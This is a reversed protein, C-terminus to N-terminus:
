WEEHGPISNWGEEIWKIPGQDGHEHVQIAWDIYRRVDKYAQLIDDPWFEDPIAALEAFIQAALEASKNMFYTQAMMLAQHKIDKV